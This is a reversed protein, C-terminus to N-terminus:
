SFYYFHILSTNLISVNLADLSSNITEQLDVLTVPRSSTQDTIIEVSRAAQTEILDSLDNLNINTVYDQDYSATGDSSAASSADDANESSSETSASAEGDERYVEKVLTEDHQLQTRLLNHEPTGAPPKVM